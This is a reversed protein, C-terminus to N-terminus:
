QVPQEWSPGFSLTAGTQWNSANCTVFIKDDGAMQHNIVTLCQPSCVLAKIANFPFKHSGDWEPFHKQTHKTTLSTLVRTHEALNPLFVALYQVLCLFRHVETASTPYPWQLIKECKSSQPEVGQTSIHHGLFDLEILFFHCKNLNMYLHAQWLADLVLHIHEQHEELTNSWIVM